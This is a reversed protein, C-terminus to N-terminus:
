VDTNNLLLDSELLKYVVKAWFEQAKKKSPWFWEWYKKNSIYIETRYEIVNWKEDFKNEIDIYKPLDKFEKQVLEQLQTKYSKVNIWELTWVKSYIYKYIFDYAYKEWLDIYIYWILAETADWLIVDKDRWWTKEEWKWLFLYENLSIDRAVEALTEERILAIKYLTLKSEEYEEFDNFLFSAIAAWLVADWLFELRENYPIDEIYDSAFSRHIFAITLLQFDKITIDWIWLSLIYNKLKEKNSEVVDSFM